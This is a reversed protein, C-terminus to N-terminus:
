FNSIEYNKGDSIVKIDGDLDTRLVKIDYKALTELTESHPHGYPNREGVSIVAIEPSVAALFEESSSTKSGQHAVKLIDSELYAERSIIEKEAQGEIDATFLFSNEEFVLRGVISTNNIAKGGKIKQGELNKAPHLIDLYIKEGVRIRQGTQAIFIDANEKAILEVWQRYGFTDVEIGTWLIQNIQYRELVKLLGNLHDASPHTLIILDLTRDWFPMEKGLKELITSDPGGDILIQYGGGSRQRPIEIFISDGQGVDFFIVELFGPRSLNYVVIGALINLCFLFALIGVVFNKNKGIM